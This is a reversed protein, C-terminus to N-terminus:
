LYTTAPKIVKKNNIFSSVYVIFSHRHNSANIWMSKIEDSHATKFTYGFSLLMNYLETTKNKYKDQLSSKMQLFETRIDLIDSLTRIIQDRQLDTLVATDHLEDLQNNIQDHNVININLGLVEESPTAAEIQKNSEDQLLSSTEYTEEDVEQNKNVQNKNGQIDLTDSEKVLLKETEIPNSSSGQQCIYKQIESSSDKSNSFVQEDKKQQSEEIDSDKSDIVIALNSQIPSAILINMKNLQSHPKNKNSWQYNTNNSSKDDSITASSVLIPVALVKRTINSADNNKSNSNEKIHSIKKSSEEDSDDDVIRRGYSRKKSTSNSFKSESEESLEQDSDRRATASTPHLKKLKRSRM